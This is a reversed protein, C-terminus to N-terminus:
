HRRSRRMTATTTGPDSQRWRKVGSGTPGADSLWPGAAAPSPCSRGRGGLDVERYPFLSSPFLSHPLPALLSPSLSHPLPYPPAMVEIKGAGGSGGDGSTSAARQRRIQATSGSRCRLLLPLLCGARAFRAAEAREGDHSWTVQAAAGRAVTVWTVRAATERAVTAGCSATARRSGSHGRAVRRPGTFRRPRRRARWRLRTGGRGVPPLLPLVVPLSPHSPLLPLSTRALVVSLTGRFSLSPPASKNPRQHSPTASASFSVLLSVRFVVYKYTFVAIPRRQAKQAVAKVSAPRM